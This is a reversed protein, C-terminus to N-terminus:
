KIEVEQTMGVPNGNVTVDVKYKGVPWATAKKFTVTTTGADEAKVTTTEDGATQGDQFTLKANLTAAVPVTADTHIAVVIPDAATGATATYSTAPAAPPATEVPAPATEVPAPAAVVPEEKKKCGAIAVTATLAVILAYAIRNQKM